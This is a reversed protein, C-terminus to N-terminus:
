ATGYRTKSRLWNLREQILRVREQSEEKEFNELELVIKNDWRVVSIDYSKARVELFPYIQPLNYLEVVYQNLQLARNLFNENYSNCLRQKDRLDSASYPGKLEKLREVVLSLTQYVKGFAELPTGEMGATLEGLLDSLSKKKEVQKVEARELFGEVLELAKLLSSVRLAKKLNEYLKQCPLVMEFLGQQKDYHAEAGSEFDKLVLEKHNLNKVIWGEKHLRKVFEIPLKAQLLLEGEEKFSSVLSENEKCFKLFEVLDIPREILLYGEKVQLGKPEDSLDTKLVRLSMDYARDTNKLVAYATQLEEESVAGEAKREEYRRLKPMQPVFREEQEQITEKGYDEVSLKPRDSSVKFGKPLSVVRSLLQHQEPTKTIYSYVLSDFDAQDKLLEVAKLFQRLEQVTAPKRLGAYITKLYLEVALEVLEPSFEKSLIERVKQPPLHSLELVPLRRLLPESIEREDNLTFFTYLNERKAQLLEGKFRIRANQLFDLFFADVSPHSKDLEDVLLLVKKKHSLMVAQTLVGEQLRFGSSSKEDPLFAYLFDEERASPHV